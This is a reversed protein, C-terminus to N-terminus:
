EDEDSKPREGAFIKKADDTLYPDIASFPLFITYPGEVYAGIGYFGAHTISILGTHGVIINLSMSAICYILILILIHLLYEM